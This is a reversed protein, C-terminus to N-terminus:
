EFEWLATDAERCRRKEKLHRRGTHAPGFVFACVSSIHWSVWEATCGIKVNFVGGRSVLPLYMKRKFLEAGPTCSLKECFLPQTTFVRTACMLCPLFLVASLYVLTVVWLLRMIWENMNLAARESMTSHAELFGSWKHMGHFLLFIAKTDLKGPLHFTICLVVKKQNRNLM